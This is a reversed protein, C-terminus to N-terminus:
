IAKGECRPSEARNFCLIKAKQREYQVLVIAATAHGIVELKRAGRDSGQSATVTVASATRVRQVDSIETKATVKAQQRWLSANTTM